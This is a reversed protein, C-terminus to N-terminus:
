FGPGRDSVELWPGKATEGTAMSFDTGRPTHDFVNGVLADILAELAQRTVDVEVDPANAVVTMGRGQEDALVRWFAARDHVVDDLM